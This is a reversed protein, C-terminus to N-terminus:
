ILDIFIRCMCGPAVLPAKKLATKGTRFDLESLLFGHCLVAEPTERARHM